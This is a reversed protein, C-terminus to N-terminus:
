HGEPDINDRKEDVIASNGSGDTCELGKTGEAQKINAIASSIGEM